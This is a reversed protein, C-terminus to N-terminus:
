FVSCKLMESTNLKGRKDASQVTFQSNWAERFNKTQTISLLYFKLYKHKRGEKVQNKLYQM